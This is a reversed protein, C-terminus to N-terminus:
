IIISIKCINYKYKNIQILKVFVIVHNIIIYIIIIIIQITIQGIHNLYQYQYLEM